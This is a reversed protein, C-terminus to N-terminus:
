EETTEKTRPKWIPIAGQVEFPALPPPPCVSPIQLSSRTIGHLQETAEKVRCRHYSCRERRQCKKWEAIREEESKKSEKAERFADREADDEIDWLEKLFEEREKKDEESEYGTEKDWDPDDEHRHYDYHYGLSEAHYGCVANEKKLGDNCASWDNFFDWFRKRLPEFEREYAAKYAICFADAANVATGAAKLAERIGPAKERGEREALSQTYFEAYHEAYDNATHSNSCFLCM